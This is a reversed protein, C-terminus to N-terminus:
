FMSTTFFIGSSLITASVSAGHYTCAETRCALYQRFGHNLHPILGVCALKLCTCVRGDTTFASLYVGPSTAMTFSLFSGQPTSCTTSTIALMLPM